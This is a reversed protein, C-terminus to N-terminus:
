QIPSLIGNKLDWKPILSKLEHTMEWSLLHGSSLDYNVSKRHLIHAAAPGPPLSSSSSSSSFVNTSALPSFGIFSRWGEEPTWPAVDRSAGASIIRRLSVSQGGSAAQKRKRGHVQQWKTTAAFFGAPSARYHQNVLCIQSPSSIREPGRSFSRSLLCKVKCAHLLHLSFKGGEQSLKLDLRSNFPCAVWIFSFLVRSSIWRFQKSTLQQTKSIDATSIDKM